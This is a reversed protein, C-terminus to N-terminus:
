EERPPNKPPTLGKEFAGLYANPISARIEDKNLKQGVVFGYELLTFWLKNNNINWGNSDNAKVIAFQTTLVEQSKVEQPTATFTVRCEYWRKDTSPPHIVIGKQNDALDYGTSDYWKGKFSKLGHHPIFALLRADKATLFGMLYYFGTTKNIGTSPKPKIPSARERQINTYIRSQLEKSLWFTEGNAYKVQIQSNQIALVQYKDRRNEYQKGVEFTM